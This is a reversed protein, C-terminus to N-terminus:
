GKRLEKAPKECGPNEEEYEWLEVIRPLGFDTTAITPSVGGGIQIDSVARHKQMSGWAQLQTITRKM